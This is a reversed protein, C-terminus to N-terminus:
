SAFFSLIVAHSSDLAPLLLLLMVLLCLRPLRRNMNNVYREKDAAAEREKEARAIEKARSVEYPDISYSPQASHHTRSNTDKEGLPTLDYKSERDANADNWQKEFTASATATARKPAKSRMSPSASRMSPSASRQPLRPPLEVIETPEELYIDADSSDDSAGTTEMAIKSTRSQSTKKAMKRSIKVLSLERIRLFHHVTIPKLKSTLCYVLRDLLRFSDLLVLLPFRCQIQIRRAEGSFGNSKLNTLPSGHSTESYLCPRSAIYIETPTGGTAFLIESFYFIFVRLEWFDLTM